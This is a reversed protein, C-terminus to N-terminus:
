FHLCPLFRDKTICTRPRISVKGFLRCHLDYKVISLSSVLYVYVSLSKLPSRGWWGQSCRWGCIRSIPLAFRHKCHFDFSQLIMYCECNNFHNPIKGSDGMKNRRLDSHSSWGCVTRVRFWFGMYIVNETRNGM